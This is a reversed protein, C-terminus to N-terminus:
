SAPTNPDPAITASQPAPAPKQPRRFLLPIGRTLSRTSLHNPVDAKKILTM